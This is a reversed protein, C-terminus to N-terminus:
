RPEGGGRQNKRACKARPRRAKSRKPENIFKPPFVNQASFSKQFWAQAPEKRSDRCSNQSHKPATATNTAASTRRGRVHPVRSSNPRRKRSHCHFAWPERSQDRRLYPRPQLPPTADGPEAHARIM